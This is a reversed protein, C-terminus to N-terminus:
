RAREDPRVVGKWPDYDQSPPLETQHNVLLEGAKLVPWAAMLYMMMSWVTLAAAVYLMMYGFITLKHQIDVPAVLLLIISIMQVTTKVKGLYSVAVSTRKGMEAMWERLASILIERMTIVVVPLTLWFSNHKHVLLLLAVVVILKDAVPDLFAGLRSSQDLRRALYGDLWDTMAAVSFVLAMVIYAWNEAFSAFLVFVPIMLIRIVTVLNPINLM